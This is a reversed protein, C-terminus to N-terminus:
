NLHLQGSSYGPVNAHKLAINECAARRTPQASQDSDNRLPPEKGSSAIQEVTDSSQKAGALYVIVFGSVLRQPFSYFPRPKNGHKINNYILSNIYDSLGSV